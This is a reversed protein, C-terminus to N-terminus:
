ADGALWAVVDAAPGTRAARWGTGAWLHVADLDGAAAAAQRLSRTLHHVQPYATLQAHQHRDIFGNRLARAPRGTFVRTVVTETFADDGLARRHPASTGAEDTRLFLTGVSVAEAGAALLRAVSEPGDVGGAAVVPADVEDRVRRVLEATGVPKPDRTPDLTASHGGASSGQVVLGDVGLDQAKRAEAASTVSALVTTGVAQLARVASSHPLGFTFSVVPVPSDVLLAVKDDIRDDDTVPDHNLAVGYRKADDAIEDVFAAFAHEDVHEQASAFLNVGFDAGIARAEEIQAGLGDPSQYGGALFPFGGAGAVAAALAVTSPGGAMPAAAIPLRSNLLPM